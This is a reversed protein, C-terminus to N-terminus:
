SPPEPNPSIGIKQVLLSHYRTLNLIPITSHSVKRTTTAWLGIETEFETWTFSCLQCNSLQRLSWCLSHPSFRRRHESFSLCFLFFPDLASHLPSFLRREGEKSLSVLGVQNVQRMFWLRCRWGEWTVLYPLNLFSFDFKWTSKGSMKNMTKLVCSSFEVSHKSM